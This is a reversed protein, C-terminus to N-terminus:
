GALIGAMITAGKAVAEDANLNAYPPFGFEEELWARVWPIRSSGGVLVVKNIEDKSLESDEIAM